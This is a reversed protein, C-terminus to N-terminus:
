AMTRGFERIRDLTGALDPADLNVVLCDLGAEGFAAVDERVADAGGTFPLRRGEEVVPDGIRHWPAYMATRLSGPDRGAAAAHARVDELAASFASPTDLPHRPNRGVPYWGDGSRGARRRAAPGEGGIWVPPGPRQVPKPEFVLGDFAAFGGGYSPRADSWLVRMAELWEDAARGRREYPPSGLAAMEERMWGVGAGVTLRGESLVDLTALMKATLVPQRHPLVLVSTLLRIRETRAAVFALVTLVDLCAGEAAGPWVGDETYPYRSGVAEATVVHDNVGFYGFGAEECARAAAAIGGPGATAGRTSMHFGFEM